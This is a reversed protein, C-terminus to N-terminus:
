PPLGRSSRAPEGCGIRQPLLSGRGRGACWGSPWSCGFQYSFEVGSGYSLHCKAPQGRLVPAHAVATVVAAVPPFARGHLVRCCTRFRAVAGGVRCACGGFCAAGGAVGAQAPAAAVAPGGWGDQAEAPVADQGGDGGRQGYAALGEGAGGALGVLRGGEVGEDLVEQVGEGAALAFTEGPSTRFRYQEGAVQGGDLGGAGSAGGALGERGALGAAGELVRLDGGPADALVAVGEM